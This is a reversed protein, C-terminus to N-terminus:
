SSLAKIVLLAVGVLLPFAASSLVLRRDSTRREEDRERQAILMDVKEELADMRLEFVDKRVFNSDLTKILEGLQHTFGDLQRSVQRTVDDLRRVVEGLTFDYERREPPVSM